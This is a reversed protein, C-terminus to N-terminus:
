CLGCGGFEYRAKEQAAEERARERELRMQEIKAVQVGDCLRRRGKGGRM